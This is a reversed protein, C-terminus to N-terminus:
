RLLSPPKENCIGLLAPKDAALINTWAVAILLL